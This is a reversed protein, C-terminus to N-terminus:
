RVIWGNHRYGAAYSNIMDRLVKMDRFGIVVGATSEWPLLIGHFLPSNWGIIYQGSIKNMANWLSLRGDTPSMQPFFKELQIDPSITHPGAPNHNRDIYWEIRHYIESLTISNARSALFSTDFSNIDFKSWFKNEAYSKVTKIKTNPPITKESKTEHNQNKLKAPSKTTKRTAAM